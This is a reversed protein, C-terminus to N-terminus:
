TKLVPLSETRHPPDYFIGMGAKSTIGDGQKDKM